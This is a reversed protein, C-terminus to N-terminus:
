TSTEEKEKLLRKITKERVALAAKLRANESRLHEIQHDRWLTKRPIEIRGFPRSLM